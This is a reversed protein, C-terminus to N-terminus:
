LEEDDFDDGTSFSDREEEEEIGLAALLVSTYGTKLDAGNVDAGRDLLMRVIESHGKWAAYMMATYGREDRAHLDAEWDLLLRVIESQGSKAAIMLATRGWKDRVNIDAGKELLIRIVDEYEDAKTRREVNEPLTRSDPHANM